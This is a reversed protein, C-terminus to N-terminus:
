RVFMSRAVFWLNAPREAVRRVYWPFWASGYSVLVRVRHGTRALDLQRGVAIGYLMQFEYAEPAIGGAKAELQLTEIMKPDHTAFAVRARQGAEQLLLKGLSLFNADVASKKRYAVDAPEAYAGKVLRIGPSLPLLRELDKETRYLYAQLCVGVNDHAGRAREYLRLTVDVYSSDEMDVWVFNGLGSAQKVIRDLHAAAIQPDLDLGLQTLKVSIEADLSRAAIDSLVSGYHSAVQQAEEERSINEGLLTLVTSISGEALSESVQLADDVEEGPM